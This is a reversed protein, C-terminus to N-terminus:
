GVGFGIFFDLFDQLRYDSLSMRALLVVNQNAGVEGEGFKTSNLSMAVLKALAKHLSAVLHGEQGIAKLILSTANPMHGIAHLDVVDRM